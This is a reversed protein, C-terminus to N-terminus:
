KADVIRMYVINQTFSSLSTVTDEYGTVRGTFFDHYTNSYLPLQPLLDNWVELYEVFADAFEDRQTGELRRMKVITEDLKEDAIQSQNFAPREAFDSHEAYYRDYIASFGTALNLVTHNSDSVGYLIDLLAPFPGEDIIYEMGVKKANEPLQTKLLNTVANDESGFHFVQLKNGDKDYRFESKAPDWPESGDENYKYPSADLRDNADAESYAYHTIVEDIKDKRDVYFWQSTGYPGNVVSGYGGAIEDVFENRDLLFAIAQRVEKYQTAGKNTKFVLQGYGNRPYTHYKLNEDDRVADIIKGEIEGLAVDVEGKKLSDVIQNANVLRLVITGIEAKVGEYNGAYNENLKLTTVNDQFSEFKYPGSTVKPNYQIEDRVRQAAARIEESSNTFGNGEDNFKAEPFWDHMPEPSAAVYAREFFYPLSEADITLSFTYDDVLKVGEFKGTEAYDAFGLLDDGTSDQPAFDKHEASARFLISFVYDKATVPEGDSWLLGEKLTFTYTKNGADDLEEEVKEVVTPNDKFEGTDRDNYFVGYSWLMDRVWVDYSSNSYGSVFSGDQDAPVAITLTESAQDAVPKPEKEGCGALVLLSVILVAFLKKM